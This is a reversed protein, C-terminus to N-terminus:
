LRDGGRVKSGNNGTSTSPARVEVTEAVCGTTTDGLGISSNNPDRQITFKVLVGSEIAKIGNSMKPTVSTPILLKFTGDLSTVIENGNGDTLLTTGAVMSGSVPCVAAYAPMAFVAVLPLLLSPITIKNM